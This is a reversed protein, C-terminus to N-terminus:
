AEWSGGTPTTWFNNSRLPGDIPKFMTSFVNDTFVTYTAPSVPTGKSSVPSLNIAVTQNYGSLINNTITFHDYPTSNSTGQYAIANTNADGMISNNNLVVYAGPGGNLSGIGDTHDIGGDARPDHIWNSTFTHPKEQTSGYADIANGFGWINCRTVTFRQVKTFYGGNGALGYQYGNAYSVPPASVTDPELTCYNFTINDGFIAVNLDGHAAFRCGYFTVNVLPSGPSGIATGGIYEKFNYTTNSAISGGTTLSGAYGPANVYGTNTADPFFSGAPATAGTFQGLSPRIIAPAAAVFLGAKILKRRLIM